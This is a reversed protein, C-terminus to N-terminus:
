MGGNRRWVTSTSDASATFVTDTRNHFKVDNIKKKHAKLTDEIQQSRIRLCYDPSSYLVLWHALRLAIAFSRGGQWNIPQFRDRQWRCWGNRDACWDQDTGEEPLGLASASIVL